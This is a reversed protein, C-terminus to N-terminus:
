DDKFPFAGVFRFFDSRERGTVKADYEFNYILFIYSTEGLGLKNARKVAAPAFSSAYSLPAILDAIPVIKKEAEDFYSEVFDDDYCGFGFDSSFRNFPADDDGSLDYQWYDEPIDNFPVVAAWISVVNEEDCFFHPGDYKGM